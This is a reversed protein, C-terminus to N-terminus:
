WVEASYFLDAKMELFLDSWFGEPEGYHQLSLLWMSYYLNLEKAFNM